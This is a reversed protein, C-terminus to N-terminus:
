DISKKRYRYIDEQKDNACVKLVDCELFFEWAIGVVGFFGFKAKNGM